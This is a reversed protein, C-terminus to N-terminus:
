VSAKLPLEEKNIVGDYEEPKPLARLLGDLSYGWGHYPCTFAKTKGKRAECLTAGRHRCRNQLVHLKMKRDRSLIVSQRGIWTTKFSGVEPVESEHGVFVWTNNFIKDLEEEFIDPASYLSKHVRGEEVMDAARLSVNKMDILESM